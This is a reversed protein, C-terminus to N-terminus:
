KKFKLLLSLINVMEIFNVERNTIVGCLVCYYMENCRWNDAGNMMMNYM